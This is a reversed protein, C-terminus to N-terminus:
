VRCMAGKGLTDTFKYVNSPNEEKFQVDMVTKQFEQNTPLKRRTMDPGEEINQIIAIM